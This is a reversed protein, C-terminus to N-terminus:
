AANVHRFQNWLATATGSLLVEVYRQEQYDGNISLRPLALLHDSISLFCCVPVRRSPQRKLDQMACWKLSARGRRPRIASRIRSIFPGSAWNSRSGEGSRRRDRPACSGAYMKGVYSSQDHACRHTVLPDTALESLEPWTMCLADYTSSLDVGYRVALDRVRMRIADDTRYAASGGISTRILRSSKRGTFRVCIDPGGRGNPAVSRETSAIVAELVLWWLEGRRDIFSTPVYIAFPVDLRKLVPYAFTKNDRYGDDFTLCAFRRTM